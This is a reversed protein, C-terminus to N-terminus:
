GLTAEASGLGTDGAGGAVAAVPQAADSAGVKAHMAQASSEAVSM